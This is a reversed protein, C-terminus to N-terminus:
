VSPTRRAAQELALLESDEWAGRDEIPEIHVTVESRPLVARIAEEMRVGVEHATKVSTRGPVLLHFDVFRRSGAQRTRLAHYDMQPELHAEIAARVAAQEDDPLAHDMLGHFSRRILDFGTWAIYGAVLLGVLPDIAQLDTVWVVGLGVVIGLSTWVDTMLHRGDAELVISGAARGVRLLIRAVALNILSAALSIATGWELAQVPEGKLLRRVAYWAISAAAALILIGELGSSFFEIKEHGYTHSEDVPKAAYLLSFYATVAALLNVVSEAADSLLGVSGTLYYAVAKLALTTLAALISLLIPLKLRQSAASETM